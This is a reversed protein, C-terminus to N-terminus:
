LNKKYTDKTKIRLVRRNTKISSYVDPSKRLSSNTLGIGDTIIVKNKYKKPQNFEIQNEDAELNNKSIYLSNKSNTLSKKMNNILNPTRNYRKNKNQSLDYKSNRNISYNNNLISKSQYGSNDKDFVLSNFNKKNFSNIEFNRLIKRNRLNVYIKNNNNIYINNFTNRETNLTTNCIKNNMFTNKNYLNYIHNIKRNIIKSELDNNKNNQNNIVKNKTSYNQYIQNTNNSNKLNINVKSKSISNCTNNKINNKKSDNGIRNRNFYYKTLGKIIKSYANKKKLIINLSFIKNKNNQDINIFNLKDLNFNMRILINKFYGKMLIYNPNEEFKLHQTYKIFEIFEIPLDKFLRGGENTEKSLIINLYKKDNYCNADCIWPLHRKYLFILVYGLSILDDRRSSEKGKSVHSSAYQFTGEFLNTKKPLIHKGTKSSRYKKCVGFDVVYIVNPDKIGILFNEPKVDRYVINKSHIWELRELLQIAIVCTNILNCPKGNKIFLDYLSEGLLTEILINYNKTHGFSILEPIGFGKLILLVYAEKELMQNLSNRSEAKMAFVNKDILRIASYIKGFSGREILKIPQYKKFILKNEKLFSDNLKESFDKQFDAM